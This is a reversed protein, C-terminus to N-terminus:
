TGEIEQGWAGTEALLEAFRRPEGMHPFHGTHPIATTMVNPLQSRLWDDSATDRERGSVQLYPRDLTRVKGLTWHIMAEVEGPPSALIQQWYGVVVEQRPHSSALVQQRAVAGLDELGMGSLLRAWLADFGPGTIAGAQSRLFAAFPQVMLPQDVNVVGRVPYRSAYITAIVAAISHGVVVPAVLGAESVAGHILECVAALHYSPQDASEGHGPLDLSLFQRGSDIGNLAELAPRWNTRDFTLGHLLLLPARQDARGGAEGVLGYGHFASRRATANSGDTDTPTSM